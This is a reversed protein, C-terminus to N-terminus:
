HETYFHWTILLPGPNRNREAQELIRHSYSSPDVIRDIRTVPPSSRRGVTCIRTKNANTRDWGGGHITIKHFGHTLKHCKTCTTNSCMAIPKIWCQRCTCRGWQLQLTKSRHVSRPVLSRSYYNSVRSWLWPSRPQFRSPLSLPSSGPASRSDAASRFRSCLTAPICNSRRGAESWTHKKMNKDRESVIQNTQLTLNNMVYKYGQCVM